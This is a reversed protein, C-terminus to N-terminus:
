FKLWPVYKMTGIECWRSAEVGEMPWSGIYDRFVSMCSGAYRSGMMLVGQFPAMNKGKCRKKGM